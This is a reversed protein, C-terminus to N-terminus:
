PLIALARVPSAEGGEIRLPLALLEFEEVPITELRYLNEILPIGAGLVKRHILFDVEAAATPTTFKDVIFDIALAKVGQAVLWDAAEPLLYPGKSFNAPSDLIRALWGTHLVAIAGRLDKERPRAAELEKPTIGHGAQCVPRLDFMLARGMYKEPPMEHLCRGDRLAHYPAEAHTGTHASMFFLSNVKFDREHSAFPRIDPQPHHGPAFSERRHGLTLSLDIVKPM